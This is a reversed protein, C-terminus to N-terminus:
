TVYAPYNEDYGGMGPTLCHVLRKNGKILFLSDLLLVSPNPVPLRVLITPNYRRTPSASPRSEFPDSTDYAGLALSYAGQVHHNPDFIGVHRSM